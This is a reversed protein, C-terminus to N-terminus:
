SPRPVRSSWGRISSARDVLFCRHRPRRRGIFCILPLPLGWRTPATPPRESSTCGTRVLDQSTALCLQADKKNYGTYTLYYTGGIGTLRPDEVGGDKEYDTEPGLVPDRRRVFHVGDSSEAYGLRSTGQKDQARYLMVYKGDRRVVAPNFTGASEWGNGEPSVIPNESARHWVGFPLKWSAAFLLVSCALLLPAARRLIRKIGM